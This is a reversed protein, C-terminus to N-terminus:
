YIMEKPNEKFFNYIEENTYELHIHQHIESEYSKWPAQQHTKEVLEWPNKCLLKDLTSNLLNLDEKKFDDLNINQPPLVEWKGNTINVNPSFNEIGWAGNEKYADYVEKMVPGYDWKKFNGFMLPYNEGNKVLFTAQLFYLIKQLHLNSVPKGKKKAYEIAYNAVAMCDQTKFDAM